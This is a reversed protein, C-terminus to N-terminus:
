KSIIRTFLLDRHLRAPEDRLTRLFNGQRGPLSRREPRDITLTAVGDRVEYRVEDDAM